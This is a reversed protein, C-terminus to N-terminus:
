MAAARRDDDISVSGGGLLHRLKEVLPQVNERDFIDVHNGELIVVDLEGTLVESWEKVYDQVTGEARDSAAVFLARGAYPKAQYQVSAALVLEGLDKSSRIESVPKDKALSAQLMPRVHFQILSEFRKRLYDGSLREERRRLKDVHYALRRQELRAWATLQEV